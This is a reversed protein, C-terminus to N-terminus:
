LNVISFDDDLYGILSYNVDCEREIGYGSCLYEVDIIIYNPSELIRGFDEYTYSFLNEFINRYDFKLIEDIGSCNIDEQLQRDVIDIDFLYYRNTGEEIFQLYYEAEIINGNTNLTYKPLKKLYYNEVNNNKNKIKGIEDGTFEYLFIPLLKKM